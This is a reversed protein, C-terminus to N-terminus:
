RSATSAAPPSRLRFLRVATHTVVTSHARPILGGVAAAGIEGAARGTGTAAADEALLLAVVDDYDAEDYVGAIWTPDPPSSAALPVVAAILLPLVLRVLNRRHRM